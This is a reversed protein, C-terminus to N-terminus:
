KKNIAMKKICPLRKLLEVAKWSLGTLMHYKYYIHSMIYVILVTDCYYLM